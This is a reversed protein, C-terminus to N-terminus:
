NTPNLVKKFNNYIVEYNHEYQLKECVCVCVAESIKKEKKFIFLMVTQGQLLIGIVTSSCRKERGRDRKKKGTEIKQCKEGSSPGNEEGERSIRM